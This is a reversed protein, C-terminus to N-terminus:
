EKEKTPAPLEFGFTSGQGLVSEAWIRGDLLELLKKSISLGLGTGEHRKNIGSDVQSFPKFLRDMDEEKIGLGTDKVLVIVKQDKLFAEVSVQGQETFKVANSLLNLLVQEVRRKDGAIENIEPLVNTNLELGKKEALPRVITVTQKISDALNFTDIELQLQGAEIKSLDLVDNILALLHDASSSVMGLQKAQEENLPGALGQLMIGSFGIISNLPTRLEHSMTALFASKMHDAKEATEKAKELESLLHRQHEDAERLKKTTRRLTIIWLLAFLLTLVGAAFAWKFWPPWAPPADHASWRRLSDFYPSSPDNKFRKLNTDIASLLDLNKNKHAAFYLQSPSFVIATDALGMQPAHLTGYYRNAVAADAKDDLVAQFAEKYDSMPVPIVSIGFGKVMGAFQDEQMSGKLLAVRLGNLDLLSHIATGRKAYVQNWSSLVSENHFSFLRDREATFAVDPMLDIEGRELKELGEHWSGFMYTIEWNEKAAIAELIDIFIGDPKGKANVFVKPSNEYVGVKINKADAFASFFTILAICTIRPLYSTTM